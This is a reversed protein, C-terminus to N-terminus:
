QKVATYTLNQGSANSYLTIKYTSNEDTIIDDGSQELSLDAGDDGFNYGWNQGNMDFKFRETEGAVDNFNITAEWTYDGVLNMAETSWGNFTGRLDVRSFYKKFGPDDKVVTYTRNKDNLTIIYTGSGDTILIDNGTRDITNDPENDGYNEQWNDYIDFKFRENSSTGFEVEIQWTYDAILSMSSSIWGNNTGRVYVQPFNKKFGTSTLEGAEIATFLGKEKVGYEPPTNDLALRVKYYYTTGSQVATDSYSYSNSSYNCDLKAIREFSGSQSLSRFIEYNGSYEYSSPSDFAITIDNQNGSVTFNVPVPLSATDTQATIATSWPSSQSGKKARVRYQYATGPELDGDVGGIQIDYYSIIQGDREIEYSDAESVADWHLVLMASHEDAVTFNEPVALPDAESITYTKSDENVTITYEGAASILIDDGFLDLTGDASNDGFNYSWDGNIDIKFRQNAASTFTQKTQWENESIQKFFVNPKWDNSTGRLVPKNWGSQKFTDIIYKMKHKKGEQIINHLRLINLGKYAHDSISKKMDDWRSDDSLKDALANEGKIVINNKAASEAVIQVLWQPDNHPNEFYAPLELCTFHLVIMRKKQKQFTNMMETIPDYGYTNLASTDSNIIGATVEQGRPTSNSIDKVRWHLGPVKIGLEVDAMENDFSEHAAEIMRKGHEVLAKNYWDVFDRGYKTNYYQQQNEFFNADNKPPQIDEITTITGNVGQWEQNIKEITTYKNMIANQFDKIAIDSYAQIFGRHPYDWNDGTSPNEDIDKWYAPYRLEGAPGCSINIEYFAGNQGYERYHEEFANMMEKYETIVFEDAWLSIVENNKYSQNRTIISEYKVEDSNLSVGNISKGNFYNWIYEPLPSTYDDGVNMGCAHFSMIPIIKIGHDTIMEFLRDYYGWHFDEPNELDQNGKEVDGWWVDVSIATIGMSVADDLYIDFEGWDVRDNNDEWEEFIHLPAMANGTFPYANLDVNGNEDMYVSRSQDEVEVTNTGATSKKGSNEFCGFFAAFIFLMLMMKSVFKM